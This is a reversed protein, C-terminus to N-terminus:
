KVNDASAGKECWERCNEAEADAGTRAHGESDAHIASSVPVDQYDAIGFGAESFISYLLSQSVPLPDYM